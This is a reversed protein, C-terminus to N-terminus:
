KWLIKNNAAIPPRVWFTTNNEAGPPPLEWLTSDVWFDQWHCTTAGAPSSNAQHQENKGHTLPSAGHPTDYRQM